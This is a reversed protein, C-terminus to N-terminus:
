GPRVSRTGFGLSTGLELCNKLQYHEVIRSLLRGYKKSISQVRVLESIRRKESDSKKSGQGLDNIRIDRHDITLTSRIMRIYSDDVENTKKIIENYFEFVYPSHIKHENVASRRYKWYAKIM